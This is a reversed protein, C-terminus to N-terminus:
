RNSGMSSNYDGVIYSSKTRVVVDPVRVRVRIRKREGREGGVEPYYGLSYQRRLEEAISRFSSDLNAVTDAEFMRGGSYRALEELYVRGVRYEEPSTGKAGSPVGPFGGGQSAIISGLIDAWVNGTRIPRRTTTSGAYQRYTDYRIPYILADVEEVLRITTEYNTLRSTTDVGDTFLVIAKRGPIDRLEREITKGVADYLSTGSGFNAREIASRLRFRDNTPRTLIQYDEDFAVVMVTDNPRLQDVFSIAAMRIEDIKYQTSPSVDLLLVVTFPTEVSAFYEVRQEAGNEYIKFDRQTLGPIFRGDRDLVSVPLTVFNTDIKIVEDDELVLPPPPALDTPSKNPSNDQLVPAPKRNEPYPTDNKLEPPSSAPEVKQDTDNVVRPRTTNTSQAFAYMGSMGLLVAAALIKRM